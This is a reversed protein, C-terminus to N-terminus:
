EFNHHANAFLPQELDKESIIRESNPIPWEIKLEPDNYIIGTESEKHYHNDCKYHFTAMESLVAFGHAFGRPIFLQKENEESLIIAFSQAYTASSKRLDVVVDLVEGHIVSVLKSQANPNVQYHLGRIVGYKSTSINDQVFQNRKSDNIERKSNYIEYFSGRDDKYITQDFVLLGAVGHKIKNM